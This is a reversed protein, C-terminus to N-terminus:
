NASHKIALTLEFADEIFESEASVADMNSLHNNLADEDDLRVFAYDPKVVIRPCDPLPLGQKM